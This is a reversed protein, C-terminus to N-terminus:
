EHKLKQLELWCSDNHITCVTEIETVSNLQSLLECNMAYWTGRYRGCLLPSHELEQGLSFYTLLGEAGFGYLRECCDTARRIYVVQDGNATLLFFLFRNSDCLRSVGHYGFVVVM